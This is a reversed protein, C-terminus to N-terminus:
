QIRYPFQLHINSNGLFELGRNQGDRLRKYSVDVVLDTRAIFGNRLTDQM